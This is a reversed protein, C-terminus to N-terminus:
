RIQLAWWPTAQHAKDNFPGTCRALLRLGHRVVERGFLQGPLELDIAGFHDPDTDLLVHRDVVTADVLGEEFGHPQGVVLGQHVGGVRSSGNGPARPARGSVGTPNCVGLFFGVSMQDMTTRDTDQMKQDFSKQYKGLYVSQDHSRAQRSEIVSIVAVTIDFFFSALIEILRM